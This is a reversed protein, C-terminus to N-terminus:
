SEGFEDDLLKSLNDAFYELHAIINKYDLRMPGILGVSGLIGGSQYRAIVMSSNFLENRGTEAGISVNLPHNELSLLNLLEERKALFQMLSVADHALEAYSLLNAQGGLFIQEGAADKCLAFICYLLPSLPLAYESLKIILEQMLAPTVKGLPLDYLENTIFERFYSLLEPSLPFDMRCLRNKAVSSSTILVVVFTRANIPLIEIKMIIGSSKVAATSVVACNMLAALEQSAKEILSSPDSYGDKFFSRIRQKEDQQLERRKMLRDIYYRYGLHTPIRGASTHPQEIMDLEALLAMENRITASSVANGLYECIFKSGVPEGTQTYIEIIAELIRQKRSDLEM